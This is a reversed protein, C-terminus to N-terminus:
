NRGHGGRPTDSTQSLDVGPIPASDFYEDLDADGAMSAPTADDKPAETPLPRSLDADAGLYDAASAAIPSAPSVGIPEAEPM